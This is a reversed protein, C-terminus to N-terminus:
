GGVSDVLPHPPPPFVQDPELTPDAKHEFASGNLPITVLHGPDHVFEANHTEHGQLPYNCSRLSRDNPRDHRKQVPVVQSRVNSENDEHRAPQLDDLCREVARSPRRGSQSTSVPGSSLPRPERVRINEEGRLVPEYQYYLRLRGVIFTPHTRLKRPLEITYANGM